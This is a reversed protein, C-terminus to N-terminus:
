EGEELKFTFAWWWEPLDRLDGGHISPLVIETFFEAPTEADDPGFEPHGEIGEAFADEESIEGLREVRVETCRAFMRAARRPMFIGPLEDRQRETGDENRWPIVFEPNEPDEWVLESDATYETLGSMEGRTAECIGERLYYRVGPQYPRDQGDWEYENRYPNYDPQPNMERRTQFTDGPELSLLYRVKWDRFSPGPQYDDRKM